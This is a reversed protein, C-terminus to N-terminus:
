KSKNAQRKATTKSSQKYTVIVGLRRLQRKAEAAREFDDRSRAIELLAFWFTPSQQHM